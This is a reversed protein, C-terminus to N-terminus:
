NVSRNYHLAYSSIYFIRRVLIFCHFPSRLKKIDTSTGTINQISMIGMLYTHVIGKRTQLTHQTEAGGRKTLVGGLFYCIFGCFFIWKSSM